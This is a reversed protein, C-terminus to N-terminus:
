SKENMIEKSDKQYEGTQYPLFFIFYFMCMCMTLESPLISYDMCAQMLFAVIIGLTFFSFKKILAFLLILVFFVIFCTGVVISLRLVENLFINHGNTVSWTENVQIRDYTFNMGLGKPNDIIKQITAKWIWKRSGLSSLDRELMIRKFIVFGVAVVPIIVLALKKRNKKEQIIADLIKTFIILISGIIATNTHCIILCIALVFLSILYTRKNIFKDKNAVCFAVFLILMMAYQCKYSYIWNFRKEYFDPNQLIFRLKGDYMHMAIYGKFYVIIAIFNTIIISRIMFRQINFREFFDKDDTAVLIIFMLFSVVTNRAQWIWQIQPMNNMYSDVYAILVLVLLFVLVVNNVRYQQRICRSITYILLFLVAVFNVLIKEPYAGNLEQNEVYSTMVPFFLAVIIFLKFILAAIQESIFDKKM